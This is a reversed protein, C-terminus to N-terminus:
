LSGRQKLFKVREGQKLGRLPETINSLENKIPNIYSQGALIIFEDKNLNSIQKLQKVVKQGWVIADAKSLVILDPKKKRKSPPVYSLTVDYPEIEEDLEVLGYKASIIFIKDPNLKEAYKLSNTFLPGKYLDRAKTKKNGKRSVCSILVIKKM